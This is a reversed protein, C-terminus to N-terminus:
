GDFPIPEGRENDKDNMHKQFEMGIQLCEFIIRSCERDRVGLIHYLFHYRFDKFVEIQERNLIKLLKEECQKYKKLHRTIKDDSEDMALKEENMFMWMLTNKVM